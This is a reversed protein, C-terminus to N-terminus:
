RCNEEFDRIFDNIKQTALELGNDVKATPGGPPSIWETWYTETMALLEGKARQWAMGRMTRIEKSIM